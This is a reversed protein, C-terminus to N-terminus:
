LSVLIDTAYQIMGLKRALALSAKNRWSTSYCPILGGSWVRAAWFAVTQAGFGRKRFELTTDVGGELGLSSRRVTRCIAVAKDDIVKAICPQLQDLHRHTYGFHPELVERNWQNIEFVGSTTAPMQSIYFAPGSEIEAIDVHGLASKCILARIEAHPVEATGDVRSLVEKLNNIWSEPAGARHKLLFRGKAYCVYIAPAPETDAEAPENAGILEGAANTKFLLNHRESILQEEIDRPNFEM